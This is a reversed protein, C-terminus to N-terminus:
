KAKVTIRVESAMMKDGEGTYSVSVRDGSAVLDTIAAKGGLAKIKTGVGTGSINTKADVMFMVDKGGAGGTITLMNAAVSKVTGASVKAAPKAAEVGGGAAGTSSVGRIRAAMHNAGVDMYSVEVAQGVKVVDSLKPGPEGARQARRAQTGAGAAEVVTKTADVTFKMDTAGVKVTVSDGAMATVTGRATKTEQASIVIGSWGFVVLAVVPIALVFARRM